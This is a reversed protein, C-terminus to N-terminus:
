SESIGEITETKHAKWVKVALAAAGLAMVWVAIEALLMGPTDFRSLM